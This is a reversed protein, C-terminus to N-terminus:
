DRAINLGPKRTPRNFESQDHPLLREEGGAERAKFFGVDVHKARDRAM